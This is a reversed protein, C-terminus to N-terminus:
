TDVSDVYSQRQRNPCFNPSRVMGALKTANIVLLQQRFAREFYDFRQKESLGKLYQKFFECRLQRAYYVYYYYYLLVSAGCSVSVIFLLVPM